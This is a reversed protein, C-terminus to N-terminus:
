AAGGPEDLAICCCCARVCARVFARVCASARGTRSAAVGDDLAAKLENNVLQMPDHTRVHTHVHTHIYTQVHTHKDILQPVVAVHNTPPCFAKASATIECSPCPSHPNSFRRRMSGASLGASAALRSVAITYSSSPGLAIVPEDLNLVHTPISM